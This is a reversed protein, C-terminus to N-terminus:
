YEKEMKNISKVAALGADTLLRITYHWNNYMDEDDFKVADAHKALEKLSEPTDGPSENEDRDYGDISLTKISSEDLEIEYVHGNGEAYSRAAKYSYALCLGAHLTLEDRRTGHYVKTYNTM